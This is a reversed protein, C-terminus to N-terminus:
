TVLFCTYSLSLSLPFLFLPSSLSDIGTRFCLSSVTAQGNPPCCLEPHRRAKGEPGREQVKTGAVPRVGLGLLHNGVRPDVGHPCWKSQAFFLFFFFLFYGSNLSSMAM